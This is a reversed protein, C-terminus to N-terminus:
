KSFQKEADSPRLYLAELRGLPAAGGAQHALEGLRGVEEAIFFSPSAVRARAGLTELLLRRYTTTASGALLMSEGRWGELFSEPSQCTPETMATLRGGESRFVQGYIEGRYADVFAAVLGDRYRFRFAMAELASVGMVPRGTAFALGELTAIGIRLGTFSGPGVAVAFGEIAELGLDLENLTEDITPLLREAHRFRQAAGRAAVLRGEDLIALSGHASTTDVALIRM